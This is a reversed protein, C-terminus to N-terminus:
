LKLAGGSIATGAAESNGGKRKKDSLEQTAGGKGILKVGGKRLDKLVGEQEARKSKKGRDGATAATTRVNTKKQREKERRRKRTKEERTMEEKSRSVGSKANLVEGNEARSDTGPKYIEQPALMASDADIGSVAPRADEM